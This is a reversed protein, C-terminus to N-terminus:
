WFQQDTPKQDILALGQEALAYNSSVIVLDRERAKKLLKLSPMGTGSILIADAGALALRDLTEEGDSSQLDYIGYTDQSGIDLQGRALVNFGAEGWFQCAPEYLWDPYPTIMAITKVKRGELWAVLSRAATVVPVGLVQEAAKLIEDAESIAVLYESGTCAFLFGDMGLGSYRQKLFTPLNQLYEQLRTKADSSSSTLRLTFYEVERPVLRRMEAEVTPNAQPTGLGIRGLQGYDRKEDITM